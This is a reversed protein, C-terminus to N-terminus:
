GGPSNIRVVVARVLPNDRHGPLDRLIDDVDLIIGELEVIAVRPGFLPAGGEGRRGVGGMAIVFLGAVALYVLLATVVITLRRPM